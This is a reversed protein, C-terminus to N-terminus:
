KSSFSSRVTRNTGKKLSQKFRRPTYGTQKLFASNFTSKANFGVQEAIDIVKAEPNAALLECADKIRQQNLWSYFNCGLEQNMVQSIYHPKECLNESLTKLSVSSQRHLGNKDCADRLKTLIRQRTVANVGSNQYKNPINPVIDESSKNVVDDEIQSPLLKFIQSLAWLTVVIDLTMVVNLLYGGDEVGFACHIVRLFCCMWKTALALILLNVLQYHLSSPAKRENGLAAKNSNNTLQRARMLLHPTFVAYIGASILMGSQVFLIYFASTPSIANSFTNGWHTTTLLPLSTIVALSILWGIAKIKPVAEPSLLSRICFWFVPLLLLASNIVTWLWANKFPTDPHLMLWEAVYGTTAIILFGLLPRFAPASKMRYFRYSCLMGYSIAIAFLSIQLSSM